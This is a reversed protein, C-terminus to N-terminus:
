VIYQGAYQAPYGPIDADVVYMVQRASDWEVPKGLDKAVMLSEGIGPTEGETVAQAACHQREPIFLASPQDGEGFCPPQGRLTTM